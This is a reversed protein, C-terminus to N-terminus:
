IFRTTKDTWNYKRHKIVETIDPWDLRNQSSVWISKPDPLSRM